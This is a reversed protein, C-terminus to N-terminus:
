ALAYHHRRILQKSNLWTDGVMSKKASSNIPEVKMWTGDIELVKFTLEILSGIGTRYTKGVKLFKPAPSQTQRAEQSLSVQTSIALALIVTPILKKKM